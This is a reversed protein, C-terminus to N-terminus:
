ERTRRVRARGRCSPRRRTATSRLTRRVRAHAAGEILVFARIAGFRRGRRERRPRRVDHRPLGFRDHVRHHRRRQRADLLLGSRALRLRRVNWESHSGEDAEVASYDEQFRGTFLVRQIVPNEKDNYWDTFTTWIKDYTSPPKAAPKPDGQASAGAALLLIFAAALTARAFRNM